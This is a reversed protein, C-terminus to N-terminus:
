DVMDFLSGTYTNIPLIRAHSDLYNGRESQPLLDLKKYDFVCAGSAGPMNGIIGRPSTNPNATNGKVKWLGIGSPTISNPTFLGKSSVNLVRPTTYGSTPNLYMLPTVQGQRDFLVTLTTFTLLNPGATNTGAPINEFSTGSIYASGDLRGYAQNGPVPLPVHGSTMALGRLDSGSNLAQYSLVALFCQDKTEDNRNSLQSHLATYNGSIIAEARAASLQASFLAAAQAGTQALLLKRVTPIVGLSVLVVISIVVMLEILTFGRHRKITNM